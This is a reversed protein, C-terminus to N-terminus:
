SEGTNRLVKRAVVVYGLSWKSQMFRMNFDTQLGYCSMHVSVCGYQCATKVFSSTSARLVKNTLWLCVSRRCASTQWHTSINFCGQGTNIYISVCTVKSNEGSISCDTIQRPIKCILTLTKIIQRDSKTNNRLNESTTHSLINKEHSQKIM